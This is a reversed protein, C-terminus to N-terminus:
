RRDLLESVAPWLYAAIAARAGERQGQGGSRWLAQPRRAMALLRRALGDVSGDYFFGPRLAPPGLTEPYALRPPVLPYAGAAVAEVVAIGFFEHVATSVVVDARGLLSRYTAPDDVYGWHDIIESYELRAQAFVPSVERFRKGVVLLRIEAGLRLAEGIAAFFSEPDKDYEWRHCWLVRLPGAQREKAGCIPGDIGPPIVESRARITAVTDVPRQDPMKALLEAVATLFVDRHFGSNFVVADAALCTTINILGYHHDRVDHHRVPYTLQNEHFYVLRPLAAIEAPVLGIFTALDLMDTAVVAQWREGAAYRRSVEAAFGIAAQRMRWKWHRAPLTLLTQSHRSHAAFGGIFAAHSGGHYADLVLLRMSM